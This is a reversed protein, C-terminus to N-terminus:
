SEATLMLASPTAPRKAAMSIKYMSMFKAIFEEIKMFQHGKKKREHLKKVMEQLRIPTSEDHDPVCCGDRRYDNYLAEIQPKLHEDALNALENVLTKFLYDAAVNHRILNQLMRRIEYLRRPSQEEMIYKAISVINEEWGNKIDQDDEFPYKHRWTAEFSRIAQRLNNKSSVAMKNAMARSLEIGEHKAIFELVEVIEENSPPLLEVHTCLNKILQLKSIDSCCFFVRSFGKFRELLWRIYLLTDSPLRDAEYLVIAKCNGPGVYTSKTCKTHREKILKVIVNKEYGRLESLNLEIHHESEKVNVQISGISEGKLDFERITERVQLRDSGTAERIFARIMTTKGVGPPGEFILHACVPANAAINRLTSAKCKNCIFDKLAGPRYKDAWVYKVKNWNEFIENDIVVADRDDDMWTPSTTRALQPQLIRERLPKEKVMNRSNEGSKRLIRGQVDSKEAKNVEDALRGEGSGRKLSMVEKKVTSGAINQRNPVDDENDNGKSIRCSWNHIVTMISSFSRFSNNTNTHSGRDPSPVLKQQYLLGKYYPSSTDELVATRMNHELVREETLDSHRSWPSRTTEMFLQRWWAKKASTSRSTLSSSSAALPLVALSTSRSHRKGSECLKTDSISRPMAPGPM